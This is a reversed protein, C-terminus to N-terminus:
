FVAARFVDRIEAVCPLSNITERLKLFLPLLGIELVFAISSFCILCICCGIYPVHVQLICRNKMSNLESYKAYVMQDIQLGFQKAGVIGLVHDSM